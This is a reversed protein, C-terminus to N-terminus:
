LRNRYPSLLRQNGTCLPTLASLFRIRNAGNPMLNGSASSRFSSAFLVPGTEDSTSLTNSGVMDYVRTISLSSFHILRLDRVYSQVFSDALTFSQFYTDRRM